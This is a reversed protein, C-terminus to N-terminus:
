DLWFVSSLPRIRSACGQAQALAAATEVIFCSFFPTSHPLFILFASIYGGCTFFILYITVNQHFTKITSLYLTKITSCTCRLQDFFGERCPLCEPGRADAGYIMGIADRPECAQRACLVSFSKSPNAQKESTGLLLRSHLESVEPLTLGAGRCRTGSIGPLTTHSGGQGLPEGACPGGPGHQGQREAWDTQLCSPARTCGTM